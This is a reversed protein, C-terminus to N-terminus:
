KSDKHQLRDAKDLVKEVYGQVAKDRGILKSTSAKQNYAFGKGNWEWVEFRDTGQAYSWKPDDFKERGIRVKFVAASEDISMLCASGDSFIRKMRGQSYQYIDLNTHHAGGGTWFLIEKKGDRNLDKLEIKDFYDNGAILFRQKYKDKIIKGISLFAQPVADSDHTRGQFGIITDIGGKGDIGYQIALNKGEKDVAYKKGDYRFVKPMLNANHILASDAAYLPSAVVLMLIFLMARKTHIEDCLAM